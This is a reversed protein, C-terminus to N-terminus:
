ASEGTKVIGFVDPHQAFQQPWTSEDGFVLVRHGRDTVYQTLDLAPPTLFVLVRAAKYQADATGAGGNLSVSTADPRCLELRNLM